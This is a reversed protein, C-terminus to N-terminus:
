DYTRRYFIGVGSVTGAEARLTVTRTLAYEIRLANSALSLGQEYVLSLRDSIRKGFAVVQQSTAGAASGAATGRFSIDDLGLRQAITTTLPKRGKSLLAASAASLAAIDGRSARDLGQGTVLWALKEGDPVPPNSVLRVRPFKANGTVEVGAEVPLNKRLAVVDLAPNDAPGDFTLRAREIDLRQGLAFYTGNVATITGRAALEGSPLTTIRVRGALRADLGEGSFRFNRGLDVDVDLRLPLNAVGKASESRREQGVIVVDAGLTGATVPAYEIRGEDVVVTGTLALKGQEIGLTGNGDVVLRLDPRNVLRFNEARWTVRSGGGIAGATGARTFNALTGQAVFRGEGATFSLEDLKISGNAMAARLRGDKLHVGYQPADIRLADGALTGELSPESLTGRARVDVRARGDFVAETGLWPQLIKLSELQAVVTATLPANSAIKGPSTGAVTGLVLTAEANGARTSRLEASATVADNAFKANVALASIGLARGAANAAGNAAAYLDGSTRRISLTGSLRPAATIAWDGEIILTSKWPFEAGSLALVAALPLQNFKGRTSIRGDDWLFDTLDARGSAVSLKADSVRIRSDAIELSAPADLTVPYTGGNELTDLAGTWAFARGSGRSAPKPLDNFGGTLTARTAFGNGTAAVNATHRALTGAASFSLSAFERQVIEAGTATVNVTLPRAAYSLQATGRGGPAASVMAHLTRARFLDGARLQAGDLELSIGGGGTGTALTGRARLSGAIPDPLEPTIYRALLPHLEAVNRADVTFDLQADPTGVAGRLTVSTSAIRLAATAGTVSTPTVTGSATGSVGLDAVRSGPVLTVDAAINWTPVLTGHAELTGNLAAKPFDGFRSPDFRRAEVNVAFERKGTLAIRGRGTIEGGGAQGRFREVEVEGKAALATFALTMGAQALDARVRQKEQTLEASLTGALNTAILATHLRHLDLNAIALQWASAAGDLPLIVGGTARGGGALEAVLGNLRLERASWAFHSSLVAVPVKGADIPGVDTNRAVFTGAFGEGLPKADLKVTLKTAPLDTAFRALDVDRADIHGSVIPVSATPALAVRADIHAERMTGKAELLLSDLTGSFSADARADRYNGAGNFTLAGRVAYPRQAGLTADGALTGLETVLRLQSLRHARAGGAYGFAIGTIVGSKAGARWELREVGVHELTVEFPLALDGSATTADSDRLTLAIRKAGVGNVRLRRSFLDAPTWTVALQEADIAMTDGRWTLSEIRVTSLLSGKAGVIDLRGESTAIARRILMQLATDTSLFAVGLAVALALLALTWALVRVSRRKRPKGACQDFEQTPESM